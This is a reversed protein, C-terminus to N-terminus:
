GGKREGNQIAAFQKMAAEKFLRACKVNSSHVLRSGTTPNEAACHKKAAREARREFEKAAKDSGLDLDSYKVSLDGPAAMAGVPVIALAAALIHAKKM